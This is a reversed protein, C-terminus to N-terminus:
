RREPNNSLGLLYDSSVNFYNALKIIVNGDPVREGSEYYRLSRLAIGSEDSLKAQTVNHKARIERLRESLNPM